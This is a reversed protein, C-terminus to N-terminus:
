IVEEDDTSGEGRRDAAPVTRFTAMGTSRDVESLGDFIAMRVNPNLATFRQWEDPLRAFRSASIRGRLKTGDKRTLEVRFLVSGTESPQLDLPLDFGASSVVSEWGAADEVAKRLEPVGIDRLIDLLHRFSVVGRAIDRSPADGITALIAAKLDEFQESLRDIRVREARDSREEQLLRQFLAAWQRRLHAQIDEIKSFPIIANNAIRGSIFDIFGFIHKASDPQAISAFRMEDIFKSSRNAQYTAHDQLVREDVFAFVPVGVEVAKLLELQTVSFRRGPDTLIKTNASAVQLEKLDLDLVADVLADSGFRTGVILVLLDCGSVERICNEHTHTRPDFLVESYESVVPDFGLELV